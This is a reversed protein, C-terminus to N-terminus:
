KYSEALNFDELEKTFRDGGLKNLHNTLVDAVGCLPDCKIAYLSRHLDAYSFPSQGALVGQTYVMAYAEVLTINPWGNDAAQKVFSKALGSTAVWQPEEVSLLQVAQVHQEKAFQEWTDAPAIQDHISVLAENTLRASTDNPSFYDLVWETFEEKSYAGYNPAMWVPAFAAVFEVPDSTPPIHPLQDIRWSAIEATFDLEPLEEPGPDEVKIPDQPAFTSGPPSEPTETGSAPPTPTNPMSFALWTLGALLIATLVGAGIFVLRQNDGVWTILRNM